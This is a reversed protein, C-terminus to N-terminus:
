RREITVLCRFALLRGAPALARELAMVPTYGWQPLIQRRSYGGSLPYAVFSLLRRDVIGLEPWRQELVHAHRFLVLTTRAINAEMPDSAISSDDRFPDAALELREHHLRSYALASLPSCYADLVIIRGGPVLVRTAETLFREVSSLHHFVDVLVLNAVSGDAYPMREADVVADAWPTGEVDTEVVDPVVERLHAGGCGLEVTMGPARALRTAVLEFWERYIRRLLPRQSWIREHERLKDVLATM